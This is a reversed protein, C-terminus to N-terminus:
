MVQISISLSPSRPLALILHFKFNGWYHLDTSVNWEEKSRYFKNCSPMRIALIESNKQKVYSNSQISPPLLLVPLSHSHHFDSKARILNSCLWPVWPVIVMSASSRVSQSVSQSLWAHARETQRSIATRPCPCPPSLSRNPLNGSPGFWALFLALLLLILLLNLVLQFSTRIGM